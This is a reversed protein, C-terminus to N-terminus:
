NLQTLTFQQNTSSLSCTYQNLAAGNATSAANVDLCKGSLASKINYSSGNAVIQWKQNSNGGYAWQVIAAGNATSAGSVDFAKASASAPSIRYYGGGVDTIIFQQNTAGGYQWQQVVAGDATSSGSVDLSKGSHVPTIRYTKGSVIGTSSSGAYGRLKGRIYNGTETLQASSWGGNVPAGPVLISCLEGSKDSVSWNIWSIKNTELFSFWAEWQTYDLHGSGSAESGNSETVFIPINKSIAYACDDRLWQGHTAAYYHVTYMINSYGTLPSDAVDRIKQDWNPCGVIIINDPDYQRIGAIVAQAYSKVQPWTQTNNPENLIEYIVHPNNGYQQAMSKFFAVAETQHFAECHWDIIVYTGKAIAANVVAKLLNLQNTQDNLYGPTVDVGMSARVVDIKFDDTLWNVVNANWYQPWWSSWGMSQGRLSITNNAANKLYRGSVSLQGYRAVPSGSPAANVKLRLPAVATGNENNVPTTAQETKKCSIIAFCCFAAM